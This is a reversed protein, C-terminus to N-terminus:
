LSPWIPLNRMVAFLIATVALPLWFRKQRLLNGPLPRGGALLRMESVAAYVAVPWLLAWLANYRLASLLHGHLLEHTARTAGCGPCDLGTFTHFSCLPLRVKSPDFWWLLLLLGVVLPGLLVIAINVRGTYEDREAHRRDEHPARDTYLAGPGERPAHPTCQRALAHVGVDLRGQCDGNM